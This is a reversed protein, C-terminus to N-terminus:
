DSDHEDTRKITALIRARHALTAPDTIPAGPTYPAGTLIADAKALVRALIAARDSAPEPVRDRLASIRRLM